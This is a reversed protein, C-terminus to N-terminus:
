KIEPLTDSLTALFAFHGTIIMGLGSFSYLRLPFAYSLYLVIQYHEDFLFLKKNTKGVDFIAVVPVKM